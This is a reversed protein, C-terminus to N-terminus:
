YADENRMGKLTCFMITKCLLIKLKVKKIKTVALRQLTFMTIQRM